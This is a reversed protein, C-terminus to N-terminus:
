SLGWNQAVSKSNQWWSKWDIFPSYMGIHMHVALSPMPSLCPYDKYVLNITNGENVYPDVDYRALGAFCHWHSELIGRTVMVTGTTSVVTRWYRDPAMMVGSVQPQRYLDIYDCPFIVVDGGYTERGLVFATLMSQIAIPDHLYDDEVFYILGKSRARAEDYTKTLSAGNGSNQLAIFNTAFPCQSLIIKMIETVYQDSHDDIISLSLQYPHNQGKVNDLARLMSDVLSTLCRIVLEPKPAPRPTNNVAVVRTCSRFFVDLHM